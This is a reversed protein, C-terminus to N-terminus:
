AEAAAIAADAGKLEAAGPAGADDCEPSQYARIEQVLSILAGMMLPGAELRPDAPLAPAPSAALQRHWNALMAAATITHHKAKDFDGAITAHAAKAGLYGLTWFWDWATKRADHEAGWRYVQHKAEGVAGSAFEELQPTTLAAHMRALLDAIAPDYERR